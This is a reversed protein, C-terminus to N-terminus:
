RVEEVFWIERCPTSFSLKVCRLLVWECGQLLAFVNDFIQPFGFICLTSGEYSWAKRTCHNQTLRWTHPAGITALASTSRSFRDVSCIEPIVSESTENGWCERLNCRSACVYVNEGWENSQWTKSIVQAFLFFWLHTMSLGFSCFQTFYTPILHIKFQAHLIASYLNLHPKSIFADSFTWNRILMNPYLTLWRYLVCESSERIIYLGIIQTGAPFKKM